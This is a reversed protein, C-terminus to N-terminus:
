SETPPIGIGHINNEKKNQWNMVSVYMKYWWQKVYYSRKDDDKSQRKM